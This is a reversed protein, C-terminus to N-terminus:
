GVVEGKGLVTGGQDDGEKDVEGVRNKWDSEEQEYYGGGQM